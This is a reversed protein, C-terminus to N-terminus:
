VVRAVLDYPHAETIECAVFSGAALPREATDTIMVAGDIEPAQSALRGRLILDSEAHPGEVLVEVREGVRGRTAHEDHARFPLPEPREHPTM